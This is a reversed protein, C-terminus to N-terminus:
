LASFKGTKENWKVFLYWLLIIFLFLLITWGYGIKQPLYVQQKLGPSLAKFFPAAIYKSTLPMAITIGVLSAWLKVQGEGARWLSGVVCGGALTMGLGFIIGGIIAPLWFHPFVWAMEKPTGSSMFKIFTFGFMSVLIGAMLGIPASSEGTMFPERLARVICFRSRQCVFGFFLGLLVYSVLVKNGGKGLNYAIVLGLVLAIIGILPQISKRNTAASLLSVSKGSSIKPFKEMEFLLYKLAVFTGIVLGVTFVIAGLSLAAWGSFFGGITCSLGIIAGIGMLIGGIFGKVNEGIPPIRFAFEKSMLAAIFAGLLMLFCLIAYPHANVAPLAAEASGFSIIGISNFINQGWNLIGGSAGWPNLVIFLCINGVGLLIGGIWMPWSKGFMLRLLHKIGGQESVPESM